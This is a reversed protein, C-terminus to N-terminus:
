PSERRQKGEHKGESRGDPLGMSLVGCRASTGKRRIERWGRGSELAGHVFGPAREGEDVLVAGRLVIVLRV